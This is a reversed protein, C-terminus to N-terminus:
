ESSSSTLHYKRIKDYPMGDVYLKFNDFWVKGNGMLNPVITIKRTTSDMPMKYSYETWGTTGRIGKGLQALNNTVEGNSNRLRIIISAFKTVDRTRVYGTLEIEKGKFNVPLRNICAGVRSGNKNATDKEIFLSYKGQEKIVSDIGAIYGDSGTASMNMNWHEFAHTVPNIKEFNLNLKDQAYLQTAFSILLGTIFFAKTRKM